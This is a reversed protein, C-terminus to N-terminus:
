LRKLRHVPLVVFIPRLVVQNALKGLMRSLWSIVTQNSAVTTISSGLSCESFIARLASPFSCQRTPEEPFHRHWAHQHSIMAKLHCFISRPVM